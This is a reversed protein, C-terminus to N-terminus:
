FHEGAILREIESRRDVLLMFRLKATLDQAKDELARNGVNQPHRGHTPTQWPESSAAQWLM